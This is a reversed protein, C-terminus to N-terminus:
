VSVGDWHALVLGAILEFPVQEGPPAPEFYPIEDGDQGQDDVRYDNLNALEVQVKEPMRETLARTPSVKSRDLDLESPVGALSGILEARTALKNVVLDVGLCCYRNDRDCLQGYGQKYRRSRLATIWRKLEAKSMGRKVYPNRRAKSFDYQKKM